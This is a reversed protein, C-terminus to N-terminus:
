KAGGARRRKSKRGSAHHQPCNRNMYRVTLGTTTEFHTGCTVCPSKWTLVFTPTGDQRTYPDKKVLEYTQGRLEFKSGPQIRASISFLQKSM